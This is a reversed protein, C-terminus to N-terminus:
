KKKFIECSEKIKKLLLGIIEEIRFKNEEEKYKVSIIPIGKENEEIKYTLFQKDEQIISDVYQKRIFLKLATIINFQLDKQINM